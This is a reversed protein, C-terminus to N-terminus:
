NAALSGDDAPFGALKEAEIADVRTKDGSTIFVHTDDRRKGIQVDGLIVDKEDLFTIQHVPKVLQWRAKEDDTPADTVIEDSNLHSFKMVLADVRWPKAKLRARSTFLWEDGRKELEAKKGSAYSIRLKRVKTRDFRSINRDRFKNAPKDIDSIFNEYISIVTKTGLIHAFPGRGELNEKAQSLWLRYTPGKEIEVSLKFSHPNFGFKKLQASNSKDFNDTVFSESKLDRTLILLLRSIYDRDAPLGNVTWDKGTKKLDYVPQSPNQVEIGKIFEPRYPIIQEARFSNLDRTFIDEFQASAIGIRKKKEDCIYYGNEFNHKHGIRLEHQEGSKLTASIVISPKDLGYEKLQQETANQTVDVHAKIAVMQDALQRFTDQDAPWSLPSNLRWDKNKDKEFTFMGHKNKLEFRALHIRGFSFLRKAKESNDEEQLTRKYGEFWTYAAAGVGVALVISSTLLARQVRKM